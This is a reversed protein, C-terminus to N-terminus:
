PTDPPWDPRRKEAYGTEVELSAGNAKASVDQEMSQVDDSSDNGIISDTNGSCGAVLLVLVAALLILLKKM